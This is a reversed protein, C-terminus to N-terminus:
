QLRQKEVRLRQHPDVSGTSEPAQRDLESRELHVAMALAERLTVDRGARRECSAIITQLPRLRHRIDAIEGKRDVLAKVMKLTGAHEHEELAMEWWLSAIAPLDAFRRFFSTYLGGVREELDILHDLAVHTRM